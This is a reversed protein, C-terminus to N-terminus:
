PEEERRIIRKGGPSLSRQLVHFIRFREELCMNTATM